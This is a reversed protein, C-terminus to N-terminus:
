LPPTEDGQPPCEPRERDFLSFEELVFRAARHHEPRNRLHRHTPHGARAMPMAMWRAISYLDTLGTSDLAVRIRANSPLPEVYFLTAKKRDSAIEVRSLIKKGGLEATFKTTDLAASPALPVTFYVVTERTVAVDAEGSSPSSFRVTSLPLTEPNRTSLIEKVLEDMDADNVAGDKNLDAIQKQVQTLSATGSFHGAIIAIDRVTSVRDNDLDGLVTAQQAYAPSFFVGMLALLLLYSRSFMKPLMAILCSKLHWSKQFSNAKPPRRKARTLSPGCWKNAIEPSKNRRM